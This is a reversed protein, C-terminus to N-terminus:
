EVVIKQVMNEVRLFYIGKPLAAIDIAFENTYFNGQVVIEGLTNQITFNISSSTNNKVSIIIKSNAPNPYVSFRMGENVLEKEGVWGIDTVSVDDIYYYSAAWGQGSIFITDSLSDTMFNGITMYLEGGQAYLTDEILMWQTKNTLPNSIPNLLQPTYNLLDCQTTYVINNSFLVGLNSIGYQANDALSVYFAVKYYKNAELTDILRVQLYDREDNVWFNFSYFGSYGQGSKAAQSGFSNAPIGSGMTGCQHFFDPSCNNPNTWDTTNYLQGIGTPCNVVNEFGPNPVLNTQAIGNFVACTTIAILAFVKM